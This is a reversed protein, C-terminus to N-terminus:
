HIEEESTGTIYNLYRAVQFFYDALRNIFRYEIPIWNHDFSSSADNGDHIYHILNVFDREIRRTTSRLVHAYTATEHGSLYIFSKLRGTEDSMRDIHTELTKVHDDTLYPIEFNSTVSTGLKFLLHQLEKLTVDLGNLRPFSVLNNHILSRLHGIQSNIEDIGGQLQLRPHSKSIKNGNLTTTFGFDGNRTYIHM